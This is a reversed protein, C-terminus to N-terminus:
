RRWVRRGNYCHTHLMRMTEIIIYRSRLSSGNIQARGCKVMMVAVRDRAVRYASGSHTILHHRRCRRAVYIHFGIFGVRLVGAVQRQEAQGDDRIPFPIRYRRKRVVIVFLIDVQHEDSVVMLQFVHQDM